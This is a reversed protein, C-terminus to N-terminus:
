GTLSIGIPLGDFSLTARKAYGSDCEMNYDQSVVVGQVVRYVVFGWSM